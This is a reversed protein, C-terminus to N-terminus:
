WTVLYHRGKRHKRYLGVTLKGCRCGDGACGSSGLLEQLRAVRADPFQAAHSLPGSSTVDPIGQSSPPQLIQM